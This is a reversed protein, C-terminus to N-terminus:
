KSRALLQSYFGKLMRTKKSLTDDKRFKDAVDNQVKAETLRRAIKREKRLTLDKTTSM